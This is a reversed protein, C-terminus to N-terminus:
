CEGCGSEGPWLYSVLRPFGMGWNWNAVGGKALKGSKRGANGARVERRRGAVREGVRGRTQQNGERVKEESVRKEMKDPGYNGVTKHGGFDRFSGKERKVQNRGEFIGGGLHPKM